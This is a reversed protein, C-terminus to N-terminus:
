ANRGGHNKHFGYKLRASRSIRIAEEKTDYVGLYLLKGLNGIRVEWKSLTKNRYVGVTGSTNASSLTANKRNTTIDALRLNELRNDSRNHNIHDVELPPFFGYMYLFVLRHAYYRKGLVGIKIYGSGNDSQCLAGKKTNNSTRVKRVFYGTEPDYHLLELLQKQSVM